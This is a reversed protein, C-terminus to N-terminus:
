GRSYRGMKFVKDCKPCKQDGDPHFKQYHNLKGHVDKDCLLCFFKAFRTEDNGYSTHKIKIHNDRSIAYRFSDFCRRLKRHRIGYGGQMMHSNSDWRSKEM